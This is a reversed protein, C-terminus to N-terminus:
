GMKEYTAAVVTGRLGALEELIGQVRAWTPGTFEPDRISNLNIKVNMAAAQAAAEALLVAVGADSVAQVNGIEAATRSLRGVELAKACVALPVQTAAGKLAEQIRASRERKQEDTEKPLRYAEAVASFAETDEQLLRQLDGRLAEAEALLSAAQEQVGEYGKKGLTLNAVMGVLAAGLAGALAAASGGGPEPSASALRDLFHRMPKEVYM